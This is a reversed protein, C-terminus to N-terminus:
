FTVPNLVRNMKKIKPRVEAVKEQVWLQRLDFHKIRGTGVRHLMGVCAESDTRALVDRVDGVERMMSQVGLVESSGKLVANLEVEGSSLAVVPHTNSRHLICRRGHMM